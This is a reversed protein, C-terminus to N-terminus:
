DYKKYFSRSCKSINELLKRSHNRVHDDVFDNWQEGDMQMPIELNKLICEMDTYNAHPSVYTPMLKKIYPTDNFNYCAIRFTNTISVNRFQESPNVQNMFDSCSGKFEKAQGLHNM